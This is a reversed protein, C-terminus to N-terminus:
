AATGWYGIGWGPPLGETPVEDVPALVTDQKGSTESM